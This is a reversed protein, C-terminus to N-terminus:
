HSLVGDWQQMPEQQPFIFSFEYMQGPILGGVTQSISEDNKPARDISSKGDDAPWVALNLEMIRGTGRWHPICHSCVHLWHGACGPNDEFSPNKVLNSNPAPIAAVQLSAQTVTEPSTSPSSSPATAAPIKLSIGNGYSTKPKCQKSGRKELSESFVLFM